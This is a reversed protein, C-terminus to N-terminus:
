QVADGVQAGCWGRIGQVLDDSNRRCCRRTGDVAYDLDPYEDRLGDIYCNPTPDILSPTERGAAAVVARAFHIYSNGAIAYSERRPDNNQKARQQAYQLM